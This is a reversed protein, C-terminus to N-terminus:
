GYAFVGFGQEHREGVICLLRTWFRLAFRGLRVSAAGSLGEDHVGRAEKVEFTPGPKLGTNGEAHM